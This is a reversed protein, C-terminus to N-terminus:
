TQRRTNLVDKYLTCFSDAITEWGFRSNLHVHANTSLTKGLGPDELLRLISATLSKVNTPETLLGTVGDEIIEPIGGVRTAIVPVGAAFAELFIIGQGETDGSGIEVSPGVFLNAAAYYDPLQDNPVSGIFKIKEALNFQRTLEILGTKEDGEGIVWLECKDILAPPLQSFARILYSVGKKEVLRGVFLLISRNVSGAPRHKEPNGSRFLEIDIGMPIMHLSPCSLSVGLKRATAKTNATIADARQCIFRKLWRFFGSRFAFADGGHASVIVPVRIFFKTLVAVAGQPVIWHAHIADPRVRRIVRFTAWQMAILFFPVTAWLLPNNKLNPLVGSGYALKQLPLPLYRFRHVTIGESDKTTGGLNDAPALVHVSLGHSALKSALHQLFISATDGDFRPYSSVLMLITLPKEPYLLRSM